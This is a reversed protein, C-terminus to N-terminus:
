DIEPKQDSRWRWKGLVMISDEELDHREFQVVQAFTGNRQMRFLRAGHHKDGDSVKWSEFLSRFEVSEGDEIVKTVETKPSYGKSNILELAYKLASSREQKTAQKGM